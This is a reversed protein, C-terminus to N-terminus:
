LGFIGTSAKGFQVSFSSRASQTNGTATIGISASGEGSGVTRVTLDPDTESAKGNLTWAISPTAAFFYPIALYTDEEGSLSVTGSLAQGFLTGQLPDKRYVRVLPNASTINLSSQASLSQDVTSVTVSVEADRYQVPATASLTSRGIGSQAELIKNGIRWTYVLGTNAIRAGAATRFDPIAVLRVQSEPAVLRAGQYFAHATTLPEVILSVEAPVIDISKQYTQEGVTASVLITTKTGAGGMRVVASRFGESVVTGNASIVINAAALNILTSSVTVTVSDYPRPYQPSLRVSLETSEPVQAHAVPIGAFLAMLLLSSLFVRAM